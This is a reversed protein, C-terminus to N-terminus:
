FFADHATKRGNAAPRAQMGGVQRYPPLLTFDRVAVGLPQILLFFAVGLAAGLTSVSGFVPPTCALVAVLTLTLLSGVCFLALIRRMRDCFALPDLTAIRLNDEDRCMWIRTGPGVSLTVRTAFGKNTSACTWADEFDDDRPPNADALWLEVDSAPALTIPEANPRSITGGFFESESCTDTYEIRDPGRVTLARGIQSVSRRALIGHPGDGHEVTGQKADAWSKRIEGLLQRRKWASIVILWTNIVIAGLAFIGLWEYPLSSLPNM